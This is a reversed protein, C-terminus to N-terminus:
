NGEGGMGAMEMERKHRRMLTEKDKKDKDMMGEVPEMSLVEIGGTPNIMFEMTARGMDGLKMDKLPPYNEMTVDYLCPYKKKGEMGMPEMKAPEKGLDYMAM